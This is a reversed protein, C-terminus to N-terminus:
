NRERWLALELVEGVLVDRAMKAEAASARDKYKGFCFNLM